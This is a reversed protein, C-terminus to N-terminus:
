NKMPPNMIQNITQESQPLLWIIYKPRETLSKDILHFGILMLIFIDIINPFFPFNVYHDLEKFFGYSYAIAFSGLMFDLPHKRINLFNQINYKPLRLKM